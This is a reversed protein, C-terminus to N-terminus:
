APRNANDEPAKLFMLDGNDFLVKVINKDPFLYMATGRKGGIEVEKPEDQDKTINVGNINM